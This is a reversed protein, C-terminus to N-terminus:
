TLCLVFYTIKENFLATIKSVVMFQTTGNEKVNEIADHLLISVLLDISKVQFRVMLSIMKMLQRFIHMFYIEGSARCPANRHEEFSLDFANLFTRSEKKTLQLPLVAKEARALLRLKIRTLTDM